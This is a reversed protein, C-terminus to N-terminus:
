NNAIHQRPPLMMATHRYPLQRLEGSPTYKYFEQLMQATPQPPLPSDVGDDISYMVDSHYEEEDPGALPTVTQFQHGTPATLVTLIFAYQMICITYHMIYLAYHMVYLEYLAYCMSYHMNVVNCDHSKQSSVPAMRSILRLTPTVVRTTVGQTLKGVLNRM